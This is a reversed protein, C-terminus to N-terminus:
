QSREMWFPFVRLWEFRRKLAVHFSEGLQALVTHCFQNRRGMRAHGGFFKLLDDSVPQVRRSNPTRTILDRTIRM